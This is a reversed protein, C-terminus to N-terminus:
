KCPWFIRDRIIWVRQKPEALGEVWVILDGTTLEAAEDEFVEDPKGAIRLVWDGTEGEESYGSFEAPSGFGTSCWKEPLEDAHASLATSLGVSLAVLFSLYRM